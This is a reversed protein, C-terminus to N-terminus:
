GVEFGEPVDEDAVVDTQLVADVLPAPRAGGCRVVAHRDICAVDREPRRSRGVLRAHRGVFRPVSPFVGTDRLGFGVPITAPAVDAELVEVSQLRATRKRPVLLRRTRTTRRAAEADPYSGM